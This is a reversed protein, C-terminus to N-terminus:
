YVTTGSVAIEKCELVCTSGKKIKDGPEISQSVVVGSGSVKYKVQMRTLIMIADRLSYDKLEPMITTKSNYKRIGAPNGVIHNVQNEDSYKSVSVFDYDKNVPSLTKPQGILGPELEILKDTVRKFIPAAVLGGYKGVNPSNVLILCVVRPNEVPFFGVFSSNYDNVYEGNVIKKSTGTKGGVSIYESKAFRGTGNEVVGKLLRRMRESTEESIVRRIETPENYVILESNSNTIKKIIQPKFLLGGNVIASYATVLQIPTVSIEYGFSMFAKTLASWQSPKKLNGKVEGPLNLSTYNGFGFGRLYKYFLEDDIRQSLKSIGVNSSQEIVGKVTLCEFKHTDSINANRFKYRGNEVNVIESENCLKQDLLVALTFSKFTSGPEYTDTISRNRRVDNSFDWFRNPDYDGINALALIEGTNPNMIIGLASSASFESIGVKLEEELATQFSRKITLYIDNGPVAQKTEEESFTIVDGIANREVLRIGEEGKLLDNFSKEIGNVGSYDVNLYGLLHSALNKYHYVRTPDERYFLGPIRFNKLLLAKEGPVKKEFPITAPTHNMLNFYYNASKGFVSSFKKAIKKKNGRSLMRLDLHFTVDNRNYVLLTKDRDYILGREPIIKEQKMQQREAYYKLEESKVIQVDFLRFMIAFFFIVIAIIVIIARLSNM